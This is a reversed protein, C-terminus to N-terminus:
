GEGVEELHKIVKAPVGVAVCSSPLDRVVVAGAGVITKQGIRKGQIIKTGVGIEVNNEITVSGSVSVNPYITVFNKLMTDHGITCGPNIINYNGIKINVTLVSGACILNGIGWEIEDSYIVSPDILNPFELYKNGSLKTTLNERLTTNAVAFVVNISKQIGLLWEDDGIVSIGNIIKGKDEKKGIFGLINWEKKRSNINKILWIIEKAFGGNGVVVIDKM